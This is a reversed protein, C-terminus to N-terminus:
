VGRGGDISVVAGAMYGANSSLLFCVLEAVERTTGFRGVPIEELLEAATAPDDLYQATMATPIYGPCIANVVIGQPALELAMTQSLSLAAAKSANYDAFLREPRLANVSANFVIAGGERMSLACERAFAFTGVVNVDLVRRLDDATLDLARVGVGDVGANAFAADLGGLAACAQAVAEHVAGADTADCASGGALGPIAALTKEVTEPRSGCIWVKAGRQALLEACALGIGSTGGSVIVRRDNM